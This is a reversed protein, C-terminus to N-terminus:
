ILKWVMNKRKEDQSARIKYYAKGNARMQALAMPIRDACEQNYIKVHDIIEQTTAEGLDKLVVKIWMETGLYDDEM